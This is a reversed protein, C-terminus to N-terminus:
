KMCKNPHTPTKTPFLYISFVWNLYSKNFLFHLICKNPRKAKFIFHLTNITLFIYIQNESGFEMGIKNQLGGLKREQARHCRFNSWSISLRRLSLLFVHLYGSFAWCLWIKYKKKWNDSWAFINIKGVLVRMWIKELHKRRGYGFHM